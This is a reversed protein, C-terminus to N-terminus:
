QGGNASDAAPSPRASSDSSGRKLVLTARVWFMSTLGEDGRPGEAEVFRLDDGRRLAVLDGDSRHAVGDLHHIIRMHVFTTHQLPDVM